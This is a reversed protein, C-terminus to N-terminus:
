VFSFGSIQFVGAFADEKELVQRIQAMVEQTRQLSAGPPLQVVALAFGQDENPVFSTPLRLYLFGTLIVLLVFVIMWRPAHKVASDTHRTYTKTIKGFGTNFWRFIFNKKHKGHEPKLFSACLAPTFS